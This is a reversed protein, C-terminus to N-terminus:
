STVMLYWFNLTFNLVEYYRLVLNVIFFITGVEEIVM